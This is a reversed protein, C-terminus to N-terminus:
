NITLIWTGLVRPLPVDGPSLIAANFYYTGGFPPNKVNDLIIEVRSNAPVPEQMYIQLRHNEKDWNVQKVPVSKGKVEVEVKKPDFKGNYYDPYSIVFQSAGLEMKAPPIRLRYRDWAGAQGGWDLRYSLLNQREVGSFITLGPLSQAQTLTPLGTVLGGAAIAALWYKLSSKRSLM